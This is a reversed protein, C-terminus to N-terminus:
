LTLEAVLTFSIDTQATDPTAPGIMTLVDGATFSVAAPFAISIGDPSPGTFTISGISVGNKFLSYIVTGSAGIHEYIASGVLGIPLTMNDVSVYQILHENATPQGAIFLQIRILDSVFELAYPSITSKVLRQGPTGGLPISNEPNQLLLNYLNHGMGDTSFPSFTAGSTHPIVILYLSGDNSVVDYAAYPTFPVWPGRPNWQATPIVFPGLVRHDTLHIFFLNGDAPQNIFDIGAGMSLAQLGEVATFLLWFNLDVQVASLDSGLGGGWRTIDSTRYTLSSVM